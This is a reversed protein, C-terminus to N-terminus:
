RQDEELMKRLQANERRTAELDFLQYKVVVRLYDLSEQLNSLNKRLEQRSNGLEAALEMLEKRQQSSISHFAKTDDKRENKSVPDNMIVGRLTRQQKLRDVVNPTGSDIINNYCLLYM